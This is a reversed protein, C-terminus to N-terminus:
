DRTAPERDTPTTAEPAVLLVQHPMTAECDVQKSGAGGSYRLSLLCLLASTRYMSQFATVPAMMAAITSSFFKARM